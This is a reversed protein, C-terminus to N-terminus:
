AGEQPIIFIIVSSILVTPTPLPCKLGAQHRSISLTTEEAMKEVGKAPSVQGRPPGDDGEVQREKLRVRNGKPHSSGLFPTAPVLHPPSLHPVPSEPEPSPFTFATFGRIKVAHQRPQPFGPLQTQPPSSPLHSHGHFFPHPVDAHSHPLKWTNKSAGQREPGSPSTSAM